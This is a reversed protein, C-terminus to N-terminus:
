VQNGSDFNRIFVIVVASAWWHTKLDRKRRWAKPHFDCGAIVRTLCATASILFTAFVFGRSAASPAIKNKSRQWLNLVKEEHKVPTIVRLFDDVGTEQVAFYFSLVIVLVFSFLGGFIVSVTKLFGESVTAFSAQLTTVTEKLSFDQVASQTGLFPANKLPNSADFTDLYAPLTGLLGSVEDLIPPMFFYLIAFLFGIVILYVLVVSIVRPLRYKMFWKVAPEIASALVVATLVVLVLNQLVFLLWALVVFLIATVITGASVNITLRKGDFNM